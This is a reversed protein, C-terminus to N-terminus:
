IKHLCTKKDVKVMSASKGLYYTKLIHSYLSKLWLHFNLNNNTLLMREKFIKIKVWLFLKYKLFPRFKGHVCPFNELCCNKLFPNWYNTALFISTYIYIYLLIQTIMRIIIAMEVVDCFQFFFLLQQIIKKYTIKHIILPWYNISGHISM